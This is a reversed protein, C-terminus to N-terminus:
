ASVRLRQRLRTHLPIEASHRLEVAVAYRQAEEIGLAWKGECRVVLYWAEDASQSARSAVFTGCQLASKSRRTLNPDLDVRRSPKLRFPDGEKKEWKRYGDFVEQPSVGRLLDFSMEVGAYDLRSSRVPPDFALAVRVHREGPTARFADIIPIEYVAFRDLELEDEAILVVRNDDSALSREVDILGYGFVGHVIDANAGALRELGPSPPDAGIALLARTLNASAEPYTDRILGAKYAVLPAAFSTGAGCAFLRDLFKANASLIGAADRGGGHVIRQVPGDFVATGGFDVFDPKISRNVGPGCRTFPSPEGAAALPIVGAMVDDEPRLGNSHAISGVVVASLASAPELLRNSSNWLYGPYAGVIADGGYEAALWVPDSNGTPLVVVLDLERILADITAAWASAKVGVTRNRDALSMNVVTCGHEDHLRRIAEEIQQAQIVDRPFEGKDDVVKVSAIRFPSSFGKAELSQAIDGFVAIAGVPTGHGRDDADGLREPISYSGAVRDAFLPHASNLGSDIVGIVPGDKPPAEVRPLTAVSINSADFSAFDPIPTPDVTAVEPSELLARIVGGTGEVRALQTASGRYTGIVKGGHLEAVRVTRHMFIEFDDKPPPWLCVDVRYLEADVFDGLSLKGQKRFGLGIRDEPTVEGMSDIAGCFGAFRPHKQNEPPQEQYARIRERFASLEADSAFLILTADPESALVTLGVRAWESEEVPASTKVKLILSPNVGDIPARNAHATVAIDLDAALKPGHTSPM